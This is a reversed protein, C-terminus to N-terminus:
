HCDIHVHQGQINKSPSRTAWFLVRWRYVSVLTSVNEYMNQKRIGKGNSQWSPTMLTGPLFSSSDPLIMICKIGPIGAFEGSYSSTEQAKVSHWRAASMLERTTPGTSDHLALVWVGPTWAHSNPGRPVGLAGGPCQMLVRANAFRWPEAGVVEGHTVQLLGALWPLQQLDSAYSTSPSWFATAHPIFFPSALITLTGLLPQVHITQHHEAVNTQLSFTPIAHFQARSHNSTHKVSRVRLSFMHFCALVNLYSSIPSGAAQWQDKNGSKLFGSVCSHKEFQPHGWIM